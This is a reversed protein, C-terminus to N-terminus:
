VSFRVPIHSVPRSIPMEYAVLYGLADNAHDLGQTKDPEGNEGWAQQELCRAVQPCARANVFMRSHSFAANVALIRDKVFPNRSNVRVNFKAKRLLSLDTESANSSKRNNGSADPYITISHEPYKEKILDIMAPTDFVGLLEEVAHFSEGRKVCVIGSMNTVNFDMGIFLPEKPKITESSDNKTRNYDRYITGTALNCWRGDLFAEAMSEPYTARLNEIYSPDLNINSVTPARVYEYGEKPDLGWREYTFGFGADPTTYVRVQNKAGTKSKQRNRSIIKLWADVAQAPRLTELEDVGSRFVEYGVIRAPNDMSRMIIEGYGKVRVIQESKNYRHIIKLQDLTEMLRPATNLRILDYIPDYLAISCGPNSLLDELAIVIKAYTKGSGYGGVFLPYTCELDRFDFQPDTLEFDM